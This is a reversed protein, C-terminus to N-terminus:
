GTTTGVTISATGASGRALLASHYTRVLSEEHVARDGSRLSTGLFYAVDRLPPGIAAAQWDVSTADGTVPDFLLNDLRYDGHLISFPAAEALQWREILPGICRLTEGDEPALDDAYRKIFEDGAQSVLQAMMAATNADPRMLFNNDRLKPDDWCAVHLGVLNRLAAAAQEVTCGQAQIGPVAPHMDELLLTFRTHDDSIAAHWCRPTRVDLDRALTSYFGVEAAYGPAVLLRM